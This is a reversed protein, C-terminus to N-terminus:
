KNLAVETESSNRVAAERTQISKEAKSAVVSLNMEESTNRIDHLFYRDGYKAFVLVSRPARKLDNHNHTLSMMSVHGEWNRILVANSNLKSITYTGAPVVKNNVTFAFPVKAQVTNSQASMNQGALLSSAAFLTVAIIRKM